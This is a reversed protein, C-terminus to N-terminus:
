QSNIRAGPGAIRLFAAQIHDLDDRTWSILQQEKSFPFRDVTTDLGWHNFVAESTQMSDKIVPLFAVYRTKHSLEALTATGNSYFFSVYAAENLAIRLGLNWCAERFLTKGQLQPLEDWCADTDPVFVPHFGRERVWGAFACWADVNSNRQIEYGYLRLTIVVIPKESLGHAARWKEIYRRGQISAEFGVFGRTTLNKLVEKYQMVPNFRPGYLPPYTDPNAYPLAPLASRPVISYGVCSPYHHLLPIVINHIRWRRSDADVVETYSACSLFDSEDEIVVHVFIRPKGRNRAHSDADALFFAMDFTVPAVSLDYFVPICDQPLTATQTSKAPLPLFRNAVQVAKALKRTPEYMPTQLESRIRRVLWSFGNRWIKGPIRILDYTTRM